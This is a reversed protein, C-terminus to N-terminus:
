QTVIQNNRLVANPNDVRIPPAGTGFRGRMPGAATIFRNGEVVPSGRTRRVILLARGPGTGSVTNGSFRPSASSQPYWGLFATKDAMDLTCGTIAGGPVDFIMGYRSPSAASAQLTCGEVSVNEITAETGHLQAALLAGGLNGIMRCNRLRINGTLVDVQRATYPTANPEIDVGASPSHHGYTGVGSQPDLYGTYSFECGDFLADRLQIVSLGQRANYLFRSNRVTFRRSAAYRGASAVMSERIYLGDSAFHRAVVGDITVDSCGGFTLGHTSAETVGAERTTRQVNGILEINRIQVNNCDEFRLGALGRTTRMDRFFDGKTSVAAGNGEITLGSCGRFIVDSVDNNPTIFRDLLYTRGRRLIVTGGGTSSVAAAMRQFADYDDAIGDGIAGFAEPAVQTGAGAARCAAAPLLAGATCGAVLERRTFMM